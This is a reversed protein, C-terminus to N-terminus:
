LTYTIEGMGLGDLQEVTGLSKVAASSSASSSTRARRVLRPDLKTLSSLRAAKRRLEWDPKEAPRRSEEGEAICILEALCSEDGGEVRADDTAVM